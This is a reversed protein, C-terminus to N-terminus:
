RYNITLTTIHKAVGSKSEIIAIKKGRSNDRYFHLVNGVRKCRLGASKIQVSKISGLMVSCSFKYCSSYTTGKQVHYYVKPKTTMIGGEVDEMEEESLEELRASADEIITALEEKESNVIDEDFNEEDNYIMM